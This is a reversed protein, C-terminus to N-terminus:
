EFAGSTSDCGLHPTRDPDASIELDATVGFHDSPFLTPDHSSPVAWAVHADVPEAAGRVLVYDIAVPPEASMGGSILGSPFTREPEHGHVVAHASRYGASRLAAFFPERCEGNLDGLLVTADAPEEDLFAIAAAAQRLRTAEGSAGDPHHLHTNGICVRVGATTRLVIRQVVRMHTLRKVAHAEVSGASHAVLLSVADWHRPYRSPVADAARWVRYLDGALFRDLDRTRDVEQLGVVAPQLRALGDALL